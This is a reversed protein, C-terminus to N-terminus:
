GTVPRLARQLLITDLWRGHKHGVRALRGVTDFGCRQHLQVSAPDGTDVVVAIVQHLGVREAQGLVEGLLRTGIGRGTAHPAVYVSDEATHRYAPKGARWPGCYAFGLVEGGDGAVLFPMGRAALANMRGLWMPVTPSTEDFTVVTNAVYHAYIAAIADLDSVGVPRVVPVSAVV